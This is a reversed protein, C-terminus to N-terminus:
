KRAANLHSPPKNGLSPINVTIRYIHTIFPTKIMNGTPRIILAVPESLHIALPNLM